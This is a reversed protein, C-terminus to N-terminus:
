ESVWGRAAEIQHDISPPQQNSATSRQPLAMAANYLLDIAEFVVKLQELTMGDLLERFHVLGASLLSDVLERGAETATLLVIRRDLPSEKRQVLKQSVLRDVVGTATSLTMGLARAARSAPLPEPGAALFLVKLQPMTLDVEAWAPIRSVLLYDWLRRDLQMLRGILKEREGGM